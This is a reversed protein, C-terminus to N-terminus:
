LESLIAGIAIILAGFIFTFFKAYRQRTFTFEQVITESVCQFILSGVCIGFFIGRVLDNIEVFAGVLIGLPAFSLFLMLMRLTELNKLGAQKLVVCISMAEFSKHIVFCLGIIIVEKVNEAVGCVFGQFFGHFSIAGLLLYAMLPSSNNKAGHSHGHEEHEDHDQDHDHGHDNTQKEKDSGSSLKDNLDVNKPNVLLDMDNGQQTFTRKWSDDKTLSKSKSLIMSARIMSGRKKLIIDEGDKAMSKRLNRIAMFSGFRGRTGVVGKFAEENEDEIKSILEKDIIGDVGGHGHAHSESSAFLVKQFILTVSYSFFCVILSWSCGTVFHGYKEEGGNEAFFQECLKTSRPLILFFASGLGIGANFTNSFSVFKKIQKLREKGTYGCPIIGIFFNAVIFLFLFILKTVALGKEQEGHTGHHEEFSRSTETLAAYLNSLIEM